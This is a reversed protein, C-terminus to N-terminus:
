GRAYRNTKLQFGAAPSMSAQWARTHDPQDVDDGDGDDDDDDNKVVDGDGSDDDDDNAPTRDYILTGKIKFWDIRAASDNTLTRTSNGM